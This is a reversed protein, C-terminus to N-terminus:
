KRDRGFFDDGLKRLLLFLNGNKGVLSLQSIVKRGLLLLTVKKKEEVCLFSAVNGNLLFRQWKEGCGFLLAVM